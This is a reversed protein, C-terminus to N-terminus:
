LRKESTPLRFGVVEEATEEMVTRVRDKKSIPAILGDHMPLAVIKEDILRVLIAVMIQSETFFLEYGVGTELLPELGPHKLLIAGRVKAATWGKPLQKRFESPMRAKPGAAFLLTNMIGKVGDRYKPNELGPVAYLDGAPPEMGVRLYALRPFM